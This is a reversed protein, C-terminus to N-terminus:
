YCLPHIYIYIYMYSSRTHKDAVALYELQPMNYHLMHICHRGKSSLRNVNFSSSLIMLFVLALEEGQGRSWIVYRTKLLHGEKAVASSSTKLMHQLRWITGGCQIIPTMRRMGLPAAVSAGWRRELKLGIARVDLTPFNNVESSFSLHNFNMTSFLKRLVDTCFAKRGPM